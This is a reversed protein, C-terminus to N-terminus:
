LNNLNIINTIIVDEFGNDKKIKDELNKISEISIKNYTTFTMNGIFDERESSQGSFVVLYSNKVIKKDMKKDKGM